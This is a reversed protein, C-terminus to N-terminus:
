PTVGELAPAVTRPAAPTTPEPLPLGRFVDGYLRYFARAAHVIDEQDQPDDVADM